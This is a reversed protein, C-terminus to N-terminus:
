HAARETLLQKLEGFVREPRVDGIRAPASAAAAITAADPEFGLGAAFRALRLVRLPDRDFAEESVM